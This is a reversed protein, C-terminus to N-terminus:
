IDKRINYDPYAEKLRSQLEDDAQSKEDGVFYFKYVIKSKDIPELDYPGETLNNFQGIMWNSKYESHDYRMFYVMYNRDLCSFKSSTYENYTIELNLCMGTDLYDLAMDKADSILKWNIYPEFVEQVDSEEFGLGIQLEFIKYKKLYKM